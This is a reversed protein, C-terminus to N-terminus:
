TLSGVVPAYPNMSEKKVENKPSESKSHKDHKIITVESPSCNACQIEESSSKSIYVNIQKTEISGLHQLLKM